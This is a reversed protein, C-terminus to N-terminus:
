LRESAAYPCRHTNLYQSLRDAAQHSDLTMVAGSVTTAYRWGDLSDPDAQRVCYRAGNHPNPWPTPTWM